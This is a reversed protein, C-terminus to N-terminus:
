KSCRDVEMPKLGHDSIFRALNLSFIIKAARFLTIEELSVAPEVPFRRPNSM